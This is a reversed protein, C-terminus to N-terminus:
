ALICAQNYNNQISQSSATINKNNSENYRMSHSFVDADNNVVNNVNNDGQKLPVVNQPSTGPHVSPLVM